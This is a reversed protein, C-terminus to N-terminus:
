FCFVHDGPTTILGNDIFRKIFDNMSSKKHGHCSETINKIQDPDELIVFLQLCLWIRGPLTYNPILKIM